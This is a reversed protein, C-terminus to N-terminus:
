QPTYVSTWSEGYAQATATVTIVGQEGLTITADVEGWPDSVPDLTLTGCVDVFQAAIGMTGYAGVYPGDGYLGGSLDAIAYVGSRVETIEATFTNTAYNPLFDHQTYNTVVEYMGALESSCTADIKITKPSRFAGNSTNAVLTLTFSDGLKLDGVAPAGPIGAVVDAPTVSLSTPWSSITAHEVPTGGNYSKLITVSSVQVESSNIVDVNFSVASSPINVLDFIGAVGSPVVQAAEKYPIFDGPEEICSSAFMLLATM